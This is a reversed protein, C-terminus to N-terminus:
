NAHICIRALDRSRSFRVTVAPLIIRESHTLQRAREFTNNCCSLFFSLYPRVSPRFSLFRSSFACSMLVLPARTLIVQFQSTIDKAANQCVHRQITLFSAEWNQEYYAQTHQPTDAKIRLGLEFTWTQTQVACRCPVLISSSFPGSADCGSWRYVLGIGQIKHHKKRQGQSM